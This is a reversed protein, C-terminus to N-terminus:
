AVQELALPPSNADPTVTYGAGEDFSQLGSGFDISVSRGLSSGISFTYDSQRNSVAAPNTAGIIVPNTGGSDGFDFNAIRLLYNGPNLTVQLFCEFGSPGGASDDDNAIFDSLDLTADDRFLNIEPDFFFAGNNGPVTETVNITVLDTTTVTFFYDDIEPGVLLGTVSSLNNVPPAEVVPSGEDQPPPGESPPPPGELAAFEQPPPPPAGEFPIDTVIDPIAFQGPPPLDAGLPPPPPPIAGGEPPLGGGAEGPVGGAGGEGGTGTGAQSDATSTDGSGSGGDQALAARAGDGQPAVGFTNAGQSPPLFALSPGLLDVIGQPSLTFPQGPPVNVGLVQVGQFSFNLTTVGGANSVTIEGLSGDPHPLNVVEMRGGVMKFGLQTGRIGITAIPTELVMADPDTKAVHGSVFTFIGQLVSLTLNGQQSGPDYIMEDLVMRGEPGMSFTTEDALVVGVGGRVSSELIDGQFVPDGIRIEVRSGDTRTATVTGGVSEVRGIPDGLVATGAQAMQGPALPGALRAALDGAIHKGGGEFLLNPREDQLYFDRVVATEGAAGRVVLDAGVRSFAASELEIGPPLVTPRGTTAPIVTTVTATTGASDNTVM